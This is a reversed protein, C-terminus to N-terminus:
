LHQIEGKTSPHSNAAATSRVTFLTQNEFKRTKGM